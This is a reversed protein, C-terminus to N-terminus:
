CQEIIFCLQMLESETKYLNFNLSLLTLDGSHSSSSVTFYYCRCFPLITKLFFWHIEFLKQTELAFCLCSFLFDQQLFILSLVREQISSEAMRPTSCCFIVAEKISCCFIKCERKRENKDSQDLTPKPEQKESM